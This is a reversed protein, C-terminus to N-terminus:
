CLVFGHGTPTVIALNIGPHQGGHVIPNSRNHLGKFLLAKPVVGEHDNRGVITGRSSLTSGICRQPAPFHLGVLTCDPGIAHNDPRRAFLQADEWTGIGTQKMRQIPHWRQGIQGIRDVLGGGVVCVPGFHIPNALDPRQPTPFSIAALSKKTVIVVVVGVSPQRKSRSIHFQQPPLIPFVFQVIQGIVNNFAVIQPGCRVHGDILFSHGM